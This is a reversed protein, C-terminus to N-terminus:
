GQIDIRKRTELIISIRRRFTVFLTVFFHSQNSGANSILEIVIKGDFDLFVIRRKGGGVRLLAQPVMGSVM